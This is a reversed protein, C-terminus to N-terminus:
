NKKICGTYPFVIEVAIIILLKVFDYRERNDVDLLARAHTHLTSYVLCHLNQPRCKGQISHLSVISPEFQACM